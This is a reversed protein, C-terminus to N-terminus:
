ISFSFPPSFFSYNKEEKKKEKKGEGKEKERKEGSKRYNLYGLGVNQKKHSLFKLTFEVRKIEKGFSCLLLLPCGKEEGSIEGEGL